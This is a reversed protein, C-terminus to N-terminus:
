KNSYFKGYSVRNILTQGFSLESHKIKRWNERMKERKGQWVM